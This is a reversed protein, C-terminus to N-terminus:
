YLYSARRRPSLPANLSYVPEEKPSVESLALVGSGLAKGNLSEIAAGAGEPTIMTVFGGRDAAIHVNVINGYASFLEMLEAETVTRPLNNFYIRTNM